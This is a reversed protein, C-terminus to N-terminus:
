NEDESGSQSRLWEAARKTAEELAKEAWSGAADRALAKVGDWTLQVKPEEITGGVQFPITVMGDEDEAEDLEAPELTEEDLSRRPVRVFIELDVPGALDIVGQGGLRAGDGVIEFPSLEVRNDRLRYDIEAQQYVRGTLLPQGLLEEIQVISPIPPIAGRNLTLTGKGDVEALEPGEGAAQLDIAVRGFGGQPAQLGLVGNLDLGGAATLSYGPPEELLELVLRYIVLDANRTRVELETLDAQGRSLRIEGAAREAEIEGHVVRGTTLRGEGSVAATSSDAEPDFTLGQLGLALQEVSFLVGQDARSLVRIEGNDISLREISLRLSRDDGSM